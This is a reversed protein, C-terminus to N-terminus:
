LDECIREILRLAAGDGAGTADRYRDAARRPGESRITRELELRLDPSAAGLLDEQMKTIATQTRSRERLKEIMSSSLCPAVIRLSAGDRAVFRRVRQAAPAFCPHDPPFFAAQSLEFYYTPEADFTLEERAIGSMWESAQALKARDIRQIAVDAGPVVYSRLELAILYDYADRTSPTQCRDLHPGYLARYAAEDSRDLAARYADVLARLESADGPDVDGSLAVDRTGSPAPTSPETQAPGRSSGPGPDPAALAPTVEACLALGLASAALASALANASRAPWTLRAWTAARVGTARVRVTGDHGRQLPDPPSAVTHPAM